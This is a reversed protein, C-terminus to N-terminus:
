VEVGQLRPKSRMGLIRRLVSRIGLMSVPKTVVRDEGERTAAAQSVDIYKEGEPTVHVRAGGWCLTKGDRLAWRGSGHGNKLEVM